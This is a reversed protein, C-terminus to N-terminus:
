GFTKWFSGFIYFDAKKSWKQCHTRILTPRLLYKTTKNNNHKSKNKNLKQGLHFFETQFPTIGEFCIEQQMRPSNPTNKPIRPYKSRRSKCIQSATKFWIYNGTILALKKKRKFFQFLNRLSLRISLKNNHRLYRRYFYTSRTM